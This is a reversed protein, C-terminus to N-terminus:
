SPAMSSGAPSRSILFVVGLVGTIFLGPIRPGPQLFNSCSRRHPRLPLPVEGPVAASAGEADAPAPEAYPPIDAPVTGRSLQLAGTYPDARYRLHAHREGGVDIRIEHREGEATAFAVSDARFGHDAYHAALKDLMPQVPLLRATDLPTRSVEEGPLALDVALLFVATISFLFVNFGILLGTWKHVAYLLRTRRHHNM